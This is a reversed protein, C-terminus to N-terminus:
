LNHLCSLGNQPLGSTWQGALFYQSVLDLPQDAVHFFSHAVSRPDTLRVEFRVKGAAQPLQPDRLIM